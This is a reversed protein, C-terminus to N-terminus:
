DFWHISLAADTTERHFKIASMPQRWNNKPVTWSDFTLVDGVNLLDGNGVGSDPDTGDMRYRVADTEVTITAGKAGDPMVPSCATALTKVTDTVAMTSYDITNVAM